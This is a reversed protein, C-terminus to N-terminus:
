VKVTWGPEIPTAMFEPRAELRQSLVSIAPYRHIDIVDPMLFQTFQWAVGLTIDAQSIQGGVLWDDTDIAYPEILDYAAVLQSQIRDRWPQYQKDNPRKREYEIQVSKDCANLGLGILRIATQYDSIAEPMLTKGDDAIREAYELILTSDMLVEGDDCVLSPAKLLPNIKSFADMSRFVSIESQEFPIDLCRLSLAVRRVYPSDLRGVLQM